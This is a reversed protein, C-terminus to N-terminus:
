KMKPESARANDLAIVIRIEKTEPSLLAPLDFWRVKGVVEDNLEAGNCLFQVTRPILARGAHRDLVDLPTYTMRDVFPHCCRKIADDFLGPRHRLRLEHQGPSEGFLHRGLFM